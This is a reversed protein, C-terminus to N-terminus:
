IKSIIHNWKINHVTVKNKPKAIEEEIDRYNKMFNKCSIISLRENLCRTRHIYFKMILVVTNEAAVQILVAPINNVETYEIVDLIKRM